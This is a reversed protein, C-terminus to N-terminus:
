YSFPFPSSVCGDPNFVTLQVAVGKPCLAKLTSGKKLVLLSNSKYVTSPVEKGNIKVISGPQFNNGNVKLRFPGSLKTVSTIKTDACIKVIGYHTCSKDEATATFSWSYYGPVSFSHYSSPTSSTGGDGYNWSYDVPDNCNSASTTSGFNLQEGVVGYEPVSTSCTLTCPEDGSVIIIGSDTCTDTISGATLMTTMKWEYSGATRYVHVPNMLASTEGDGFEYLYTVQCAEPCTFDTNGTFAVVLPAKGASLDPTSDCGNIKCSGGQDITLDFSQTAQCGLSDTVTVSFSWTSAALPTGHLTGDPELVLGDPLSGSSLYFSFPATGDSATFYLLYDLGVVGSSLSDPSLTLNCSSTFNATVSCNAGGMTLTTSPSLSDHIACNSWNWHSFAYGASPIATISVVSGESYGGTCTPSTNITVTGGGSPSSNTTLSYCSPSTYTFNATVTANGTITFISNATGTNSFSGGSGTWYAFTYNAAPTATLSIATGQTYGGSCNQSTNISVSGGNGPSAATSLAYCSPSYTFNATVNANSTITFTTNASGANAFSGGSGSWFNFVYNAAPTASLSITTGQTYGGSCSQSTNVSVAGGNGPSAATSLTYCSPSTYTFNATVTANGTITFTTNASGTNSFSGGSGTWYAFTYNAAPIATLSIATGQNYGGSCSQSTNISVSGGNGPSAVTSLAYCSPSYAFNATVTANGTITFTTNASGANSFSGGSGSWYNFVYNAAPMATLSIVTGQTYGGSCNQSTNVSVTGGSSPSASKTFSYCAPASGITLVAPFEMQDLQGDDADITSNLNVDAWLGYAVDYTGPATGSPVSFQRSKSNYGASLSVKIDHSADSITWTSTGTPRISAGLIVKTTTPSDIGYDLTISQGPSVSSPSCTANSIVAPDFSVQHVVFTRSYVSGGSSYNLACSYNMYMKVRFLGNPRNSNKGWSNLVVWYHNATNPDTDNYGVILTAHGGGTSEWTKGCYIDPDWIASESQNNWFTGFAAWDTSNGLWFNFVVAKNQNLVNKINQIAASQSIGTTSILQAQISNIPYSPTKTISSCSVASYGTSCSSSGDDYEANSNSWPVFYGQSQYWSAFESQNGGCCAYNDTKCSNLLQISLRDKIGWSGMGVGAAVEVSGTGAWLWCNGCSGQNRDSPTYKLYPLLSFNSGSYSSCLMADIEPDIYAEKLSFEEESWRRLTKEDPRMIGYEAPLFASEQDGHSESVKDTLIQPYAEQNFLVGLSALVLIFTIFLMRKFMNDRWVAEAAVIPFTMVRIRSRYKM